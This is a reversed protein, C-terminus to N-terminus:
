VSEYFVGTSHRYLLSNDNFVVPLWLESSQETPPDHEEPKAAHANRRWRSKFRRACGIHPCTFKALEPSHLAIRLTDDSVSHQVVFTVFYQHRESAEHKERWQTLYKM